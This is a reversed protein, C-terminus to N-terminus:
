RPDVSLRNRSRQQTHATRLGSLRRQETQDIDLLQDRLIMRQTRYLRQRIVDELPEGAREVLHVALRPRGETGGGSRSRLPISNTAIYEIRLSTWNQSCSRYLKRKGIPEQVHVENFIREIVACEGVIAISQDLM